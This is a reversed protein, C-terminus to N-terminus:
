RPSLFIRNNWNLVFFRFDTTKLHLCKVIVQFSPLNKFIYAHASHQKRIWNLVATSMELSSSPLPITVSLFFCKHHFLHFFSMLNNSGTTDGVLVSINNKFYDSLTELCILSQSFVLNFLFELCFDSKLRCSWLELYLSAHSMNSPAVLNCIISLWKPLTFFLPQFFYAQLYSLFSKEICHLVFFLFFVMVFFFIMAM